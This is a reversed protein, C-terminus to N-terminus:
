SQKARRNFSYTSYLLTIAFSLGGRINRKTGSYTAVANSGTENKFSAKHEMEGNRWQSNVINKNVGLM